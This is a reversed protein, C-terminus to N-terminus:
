VRVRVERVRVRLVVVVMVGAVFLVDGELRPVREVGYTVRLVLVEIPVGVVVVWM